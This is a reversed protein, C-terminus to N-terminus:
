RWSIRDPMATRYLFDGGNTALSSTGEEALLAAWQSQADPWKAQNGVREKEALWSVNLGLHQIAGPTVNLRPM